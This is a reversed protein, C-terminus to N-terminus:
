QKSLIEYVKKAREESDFIGSDYAITMWEELTQFSNDPNDWLDQEEPLVGNLNNGDKFPITNVPQKVSSGQKPPVYTSKPQTPPIVPKKIEGIPVGIWFLRNAKVGQVGQEYLLKYEQGAVLDNLRLSKGSLDNFVKFIKNQQQGEKNFVVDWLKWNGNKNVGEMPLGTNKDLSETIFLFKAIMEIVPQKTEKQYKNQTQQTVYKKNWGQNTQTNPKNFGM